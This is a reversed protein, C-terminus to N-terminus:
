QETWRGEQERECVPRRVEHDCTLLAGKLNTMLAAGTPCRRTRIETIATAAYIWDGDELHYSVIKTGAQLTGLAAVRWPLPQGTRTVKRPAQVQSPTTASEDVVWVTVSPDFCLTGPPNVKTHDSSTMTLREWSSIAGLPGEWKAQHTRSSENTHKRAELEPQDNTTNQM